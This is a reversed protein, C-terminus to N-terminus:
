LEGQPTDAESAASNVVGTEDEDSDARFLKEAFEGALKLHQARFDEVHEEQLWPIEAPAIDFGYWSNEPSKHLGTAFEWVTAWLKSKRGGFRMAIKNIFQRGTRFEGRKFGIMVETGALEGDYLVGIFELHEQYRYSLDSGDKKQGYVEERRDPDRALVAIRHKDDYTREVVKPMGGGVVDPDHRDRWQIFERFFFLPVFSFPEGKKAIMTESAAICASGLGVAEILRQSSETAGQAISLRPIIRYERMVEACRDEDDKYQDLWNPTSGGVHVMEQPEDNRDTTKKRKVM